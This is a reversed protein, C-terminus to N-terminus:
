SGWSRRAASPRPGRAHRHDDADFSEACKVFKASARAHLGKRNLITVVAEPRVSNKIEPMRRVSSGEGSLEQSAVKIYKRGAERASVCLKPSRCSARPHERAQRPDAPQHRRHGRRQGRGDGLHRSQVAHRRVHRDARHRRRRHRHPPHRRRDTRPARRWTTRPVSPSPRSSPRRGSSTSSRLASSSRWGAM